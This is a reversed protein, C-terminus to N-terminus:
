PLLSFNVEMKQVLYLSVTLGLPRWDLHVMVCKETGGQHKRSLKSTVIFFYFWRFQTLLDINGREFTCRIAIFTSDTSEQIYKHVVVVFIIQLDQLYMFKGSVRTELILFNALKIEKKLCPFCLKLENKLINCLNIKFASVTFVNQHYHIRSPHM